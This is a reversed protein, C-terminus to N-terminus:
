AVMRTNGTVDMLYLWFTTQKKPQLTVSNLSHICNKAKRFIFRSVAVVVVVVVVVVVLADQEQVVVEVVVAIVVVEVVM